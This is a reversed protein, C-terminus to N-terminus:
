KELIIISVLFVLFIKYISLMKRNQVKENSNNM